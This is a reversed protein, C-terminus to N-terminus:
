ASTAWFPPVSLSPFWFRVADCTWVTRFAVPERCGPTTTELVVSSFRACCTKAASSFMTAPAMAGAETTFAKFVAFLPIWTVKWPAFMTIVVVNVWPWIFESMLVSVFNL